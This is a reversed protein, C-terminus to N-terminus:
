FTIEVGASITASQPYASFDLAPTLAGFRGVSVDPDYGTYNTWTYLNQASLSLRMKQLRLKELIKESFNYGISVTKLRMYSGDDVHRTDLKYGFPANLNVGNYRVGGINTDTNTPTWIDNLSAFGNRNSLFVSGFEAKNANLIDFDFAWNLLVQLDFQKYTFENFIGGIHKPQPNGIIKRDNEDISGDGADPIGDGNTDVTLQDKFKVMGPQMQSRYGPIGDKLTYLGGNTLVFDDVQYIGDFELGYIMGVPNGVRTIYQFETQMFNRDWEPDTLIEQQGSNLKVTNTRNFSINFNTNWKFNQTSINKTNISIELGENTVEGVNQQVRDFGTSPSMEANLLLDKTRKFYYDITMNVKKFLGLDLGINTQATTEWRLDPVAMRSQFAGPVFQQSDGLVYGSSANISFQNYADYAGIRNNGTLGWGARFKLNSIADISRIFDEKSARWALSFSPFYGWRNEKRFKSSADTRFNVTALYRDNYSYNLRGFYSLLSNESFSTQAITAGTAIGLNDIGFDDIPINTNRLSSFKFDRYQAEMGLLAGYRHKRKRDKFRLTNSTSFTNNRRDQLVGNIGRFTRQAQQTNADYFTSRKNIRTWYNGKMSLTFKDLFKYNLSITTAFEDTFREQGTNTLTLIPDFLFPDLDQLNSEEDFQPNIPSVPRFSVMNKILSTFSDGRVNIGPQIAKSYVLQARFNFDDTIQSSIKLRNNFKQFGTNLLTGQQDIYGASFFVSTKKDGGRITISNDKLFAIRFSEDQYDRGKVDRYLEPDIWSTKFIRVNEGPVYSDNAYAVAEQYKVYDYAGLVELRRPIYQAAISSNVSVTYKGDSRGDLTTIVIVGNAGRSGYIATASADKLIDFSKIDRTNISSPDFDEFPIGDIVYLPSNDGTISNGGRIVINLASGPTGDTSTVQVGAARGALAQDFNATPTRALDAAKISSVSGTLDKKKVADYGVIVIEDLQSVDEELKVNIVTKDLVKIEVNKYGLYSFVLTNEPKINPLTFNGFFDTLTGKKANKIIVNVSPIPIGKQDTVTGKVTKQALVSKVSLLLIFLSIKFIKM